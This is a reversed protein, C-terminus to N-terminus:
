GKAVCAAYHAPEERLPHCRMQVALSANRGPEPVYEARDPGTIWQCRLHMAQDGLYATCAEDIVADDSLAALLPQPDHQIPSGDSPQDWLEDPIVPTPPPFQALLDALPARALPHIGLRDNAM